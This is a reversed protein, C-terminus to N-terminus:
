VMSGWIFSGKHGEFPDGQLVNSAAVSAALNESYLWWSSEQPDEHLIGEIVESREPSISQYSLNVNLNDWGKLPAEVLTPTGLSNPQHHSLNVLMGRTQSSAPSHPNLCTHPRTTSRNTLTHLCSARSSEPIFRVVGGEPVQQSNTIDILSLPCFCLPLYFAQDSIM